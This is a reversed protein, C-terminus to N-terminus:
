MECKDFEYWAARAGTYLEYFTTGSSWLDIGFDYKMGLIIQMIIQDCLYSSVLREGGSSQLVQLCPLAHNWRRRRPFCVQAM